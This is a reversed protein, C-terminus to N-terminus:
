GIVHEEVSLIEGAAANMEVEYYLGTGKVKFSYVWILAGGESEKELEWAVLDGTVEMALKEKASGLSKLNGGPTFAYNFPGVEGGAKLLALPDGGLFMKVVAGAENKLYLKWYVKGGDERSESHTIDGAFIGNAFEVVSAPASGVEDHDDEGDGHDDGDNDEDDGEHKEKIGLVQLGEGSIEVEFRRGGGVIHFEYEWRNGEEMDLSWAVVEGEAKTLALAMAESFKIFDGGPDIEYTFPGPKGKMKIIKGLEAVFKLKLIGGGEMKLKFTWVSLGRETEQEAGLVEAEPFIGALTEAILALDTFNTASRGGPNGFAEAYPTSVSQLDAITLDPFSEDAYPQVGPEDDTNCASVSATLILGAWISKKLM